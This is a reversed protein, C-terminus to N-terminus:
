RVKIMDLGHIAEAVRRYMELPPQHWPIRAEEPTTLERRRVVVRKDWDDLTKASEPEEDTGFEGLRGKGRDSADLPCHMVGDDGSSCPVCQDEFDIEKVSDVDDLQNSDNSVDHNTLEMNGVEGVLHEGHEPYQRPQYPLTPYTVSVGRTRETVEIPLVFWRLHAYRGDVASRGDPVVTREVSELSEDALRHAESLLVSARLPDSM